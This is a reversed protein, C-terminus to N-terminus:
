RLKFCSYRCAIGSRRANHRESFYRFTTRAMEPEIEASSVAYYERPKITLQHWYNAEAALNPPKPSGNETSVHRPADSSLANVTGSQIATNINILVASKEYKLYKIHKKKMKLKHQSASRLVPQPAGSYTLLHHYRHHHHHHQHRHLHHHHRHHFYLPSSTVYLSATTGPAKSSISCTRSPASFTCICCPRACVPRWRTVKAIKLMIRM